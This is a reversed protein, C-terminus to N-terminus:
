RRFMASPRRLPKKRRHKRKIEIPTNILMNTLVTWLIVLIYMGFVAYFGASLTASSVTVVATLLQMWTSESFMGVLDSLPIEGGVLKDFALRSIIICIFCLVLGGVSMFIVTKRKGTAAAVAGLALFLLMTLVFFVIFAVIHPLIPEIITMFNEGDTAKDASLDASLLLKIIEFASFEYNTNLGFQSALTVISSIEDTLGGLAFYFLKLFFGMVVAGIALLPTIIRYAIKM